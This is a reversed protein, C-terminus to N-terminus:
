VAAKLIPPFVSGTPETGTLQTSPYSPVVQVVLVLKGAARLPIAAEPVCVAANANPPLGPIVVAKFNHHILKSMLQFSLYLSSHILLIQFEFLLVQRQLFYLLELYKKM